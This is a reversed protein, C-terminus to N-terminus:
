VNVASQVIKSELEEIRKSMKQIENLLIAPLENYRVTYVEGHEDYAVLRPMVEEVEEAILGYQLKKDGDEKYHFTVPRLKMVDSSADSMDQINDKFRRSSLVTGLQHASDILVAVADAVGTTIGRIGAIFCRNQQQTGAGPIGIRITNNDTATGFSGVVINHSETSTICFIDFRM